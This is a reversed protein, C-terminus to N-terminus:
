KLYEYPSLLSSGLRYLASGAAPPSFSCLPVHCFVLFSFFSSDFLSVQNFLFEWWIKTELILRGPISTSISFNFKTTVGFTKFIPSPSARLVAVSLHAYSASSGLSFSCCRTTISTEGLWGKLQFAPCSQHLCDPVFHALSYRGFIVGVTRTYARNCSTESYM